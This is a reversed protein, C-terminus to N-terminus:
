LTSIYLCPFDASAHVMQFKDHRLDNAGMVRSITNRHDQIGVTVFLLTGPFDVASYLPKVKGYVPIKKKRVVVFRSRKLGQQFVHGHRFMLRHVLTQLLVTM